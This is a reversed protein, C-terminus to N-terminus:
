SDEDPFLSTRDINREKLKRLFKERQSTHIELKRLVPEEVPEPHLMMDMLSQSFYVRHKLKCLLVGEQAIMRKNSQRPEVRLITPREHGILLDDQDWDLAATDFPWLNGPILERARHGLWNLDLAWIASFQSKEAAKEFAFYSAISPSLTWDLFRTPKGYHQMLAFRSGLDSAPPVDALKHSKLHEQFEALNKREQQRRDLHDYGSVTMGNQSTFEFPRRATRDLSTSLSWQSERQGRFCWSNSFSSVWELFEDWSAAKQSPFFRPFSREGIFEEGYPNRYLADRYDRLQWPRWDAIIPMEHISELM